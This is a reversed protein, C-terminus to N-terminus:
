EANLPAFAIELRDSMKLLVGTAVFERKPTLLDTPSVRVGIRAATRLCSRPPCSLGRPRGCSLRERHRPLRGTASLAAAFARSRGLESGPWWSKQMSRM